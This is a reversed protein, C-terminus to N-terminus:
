AAAKQTLAAVLERLKTLATDKCHVDDSIYFEGDDHVCEGVVSGTGYPPANKEMMVWNWRIGLKRPVCPHLCAAVTTEDLPMGHDKVTVRCSFKEGMGDAPNTRGGRAVVLKCRFGRAELLESLAVAVAGRWTVIDQEEQSRIIQNIVITIFSPARTPQRKATTWAIDHRGRMVASIDLHDGQDGRTLRRRRDFSQPLQIDDAATVLKRVKDQGSPWGARLLTIAEHSYRVGGAWDGDSGECCRSIVEANKPNVPAATAAAMFEELSDYRADTVASM